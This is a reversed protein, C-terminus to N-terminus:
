QIALQTWSISANNCGSLVEGGNPRNLLLYPKVIKFTGVSQIANNRSASVRMLGQNTVTNPVIWSIGFGMNTSLSDELVIWNTGNDISYDIKVKDGPINFSRWSVMQYRGAYLTTNNSPTLLTITPNNNITFFADSYDINCSKSSEYVRILAKSSVIGADSPILWNFTGTNPINIASAISNSSAFNWKRGGDVSYDISVNGVTGSNNWSITQLTAPSFSEGGNPSTITLTNTSVNSTISFNLDSSDKVAANNSDEIKIKVTNSNVKAVSWTVSGGSNPSFYNSRINRWNQGADVSYYLNVYPSVNGQTNWSITVDTCGTLSEGGNPTLLEISQAHAYNFFLFASLFLLLNKM